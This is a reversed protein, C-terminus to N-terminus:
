CIILIIPIFPILVSFCDLRPFEKMRLLVNVKTLGWTDKNKRVLNKINYYYQLYLCFKSRYFKTRNSSVSIAIRISQLFLRRMKANNRCIQATKSGFAQLMNSFSHSKYPSRMHPECDKSEASLSFSM